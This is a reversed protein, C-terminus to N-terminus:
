PRLQMPWLWRLGGVFLTAEAVPACESRQAQAFRIFGQSSQIVCRSKM